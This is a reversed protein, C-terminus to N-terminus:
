QLGVFDEIQTLGQGVQRVNLINDVQTSIWILGEVAYPEINLYFVHM